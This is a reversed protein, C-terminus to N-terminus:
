AGTPPHRYFAWLLRAAVARWPRWAEAMTELDKQTPRPDIGFARGAAARLAVDGAPWADARALCALLYVEATWPGIGPLAVLAKRAEDDNLAPLAAFLGTGSAEAIGHFARGKARTLGLERLREVSVALVTESDHPDLATELRAWISAAAKLSISQETIVRLMTALGPRSLRLPPPGTVAHVSAFRHDIELLAEVGASLVARTRITPPRSMAGNRGHPPHDCHCGCCVLGELSNEGHAVDLCNRRAAALGRM